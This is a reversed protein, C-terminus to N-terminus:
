SKEKDNKKFDVLTKFTSEDFVMKERVKGVEPETIPPIPEM